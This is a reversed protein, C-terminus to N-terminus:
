ILIDKFRNFHDYIRVTVAEGRELERAKIRKATQIAESKTNCYEVVGCGEIILLIKFKASM